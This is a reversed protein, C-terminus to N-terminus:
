RVTRAGTDRREPGEQVLTRGPPRGTPVPQEEAVLVAGVVEDVGVLQALQGLAAHQV